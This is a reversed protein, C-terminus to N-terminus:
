FPCPRTAPPWSFQWWPEPPSSGAYFNAAAVSFGCQPVLGLLAGGAPGLPGLRKLAGTLKGSAKHELYEILLYAGFLFPLTKLTDLVADWLLDLM